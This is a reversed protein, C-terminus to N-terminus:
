RPQGLGLVRSRCFSFHVLEYEHNGANVRAFNELARLVVALRISQLPNGKRNRVTVIDNGPKESIGM